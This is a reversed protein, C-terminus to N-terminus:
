GRGAEIVAGIQMEIQHFFDLLDEVEGIKPNLPDRKIMMNLLGDAQEAFSQVASALRWLADPDTPSTSTHVEFDNGVAQRAERLTEIMQDFLDDM